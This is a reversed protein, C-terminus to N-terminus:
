KKCLEQWQNIPEADEWKDNIANEITKIVAEGRYNYLKNFFTKLRKGDIWNEPAKPREEYRPRTAFNCRNNEEEACCVEGSNNYYIHKCMTCSPRLQEGCSHCVPLELPYQEIGVFKVRYNYWELWFLKNCISCRKPTLAFKDYYTIKM